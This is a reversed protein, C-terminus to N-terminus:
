HCNHSHMIITHPPSPFDLKFCMCLELFNIQPAKRFLKLKIVRFMDHIILEYTNLNKKQLVLVVM